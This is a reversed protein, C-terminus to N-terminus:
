DKLMELYDPVGNAYARAAIQPVVIEVRNQGDRVGGRMLLGLFGGRGGFSVEYTWGQEDVAEDFDETLSYSNSDFKAEVTLPEGPRAPRIEFVTNRLDLVVRGAPESVVFESPAELPADEFIPGTPAALNRTLEAREIEENRVQNWAIGFVIAMMLILFVLVALCGLCGFKLATKWGSQAM